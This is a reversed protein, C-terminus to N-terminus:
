EAPELKKELKSIARSLRDVKKNLKELDTRTALSYKTVVGEIDKGIKSVRTRAKDAVGRTSTEAKSLLEMVAEKREGRSLEGSKILTDILEEAKKKTLSAFGIGALVTNKLISMSTRGGLKIVSRLLDRSNEASPRQEVQEGIVASLVSLTIDQGSATDLVIFDEGRQVMRELDALVIFRKAETHYLRRNRYRKIITVSM